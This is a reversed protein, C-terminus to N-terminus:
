ILFDVFSTEGLSALATNVITLTNGAADTIVADAGVQAIHNAVLDAYSTIGQCEPGLFILDTGPAFDEVRDHGTGFVFTDTGTGGFLTDSGENGGLTDFGSGGRLADDGAGGEILDNDEAGLLLDNGAGGNLVDNGTGGLLTDAGAGGLLTDIGADGHVMNAGNGGDLWDNGAGGLVTDNGEGGNVFDDGDETAILDNGDEGLVMDDGIRGFLTDNGVGGIMRDDGEGGMMRDNGGGGLLSDDGNGGYIRDDGYGGLITDAGSGGDITDNGNGGDIFDDGAHGWILDHGGLGLISDAGSTGHIRDNYGTGTFEATVGGFEDLAITEGPAYPGTGIFDGVTYSAAWANYSTIDTIAPLPDGGLQTWLIIPLSNQTGDARQTVLSVFFMEAGHTVGAGDRWELYMAQPIVAVITDPWDIANAIAQTPDYGGTIEIGYRWDQGAVHPSTYRYSFGGAGAPPTLTVSFDNCTRPIVSHDVAFGHLVFSPM